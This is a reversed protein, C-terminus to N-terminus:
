FEDDIDVEEETGKLAKNYQQLLLSYANNKTAGFYEMVYSCNPCAMKSLWIDNVPTTRITAEDTLCNPCTNSGKINRSFYRVGKLHEELCRSVMDNLSIENTKLDMELQISRRDQARSIM